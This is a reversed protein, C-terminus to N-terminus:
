GAEAATLADYLSHGGAQEGPDHRGFFAVLAPTTSTLAESLPGDFAVRGADLMVVRDAILRISPVEHTVVVVTMGLLEKLQLILLDIGAATLPDLGASPEDCMALDPDLVISRALGARKRMGGSLEGPLAHLAGGLKVLSLKLRIIDDIVAEPLRTHARLPIALNEAVTLSNLLAGYQFMMGVRALHASRAEEDLAYLDEGLVRASGSVPPLLGILTRLLTSKGCGSGGIICTVQGRPVRMSVGDLVLPGGYSAQLDEVEIVWDGGVTPDDAM